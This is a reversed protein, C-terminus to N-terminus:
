YTSKGPPAKDGQRQGLFSQKQQYGYYDKAVAHKECENSLCTYWQDERCEMSPGDPYQVEHTTQMRIISQHDTRGHFHMKERKDWLHSPCSDDKCEYWLWKCKPMGKAHKPSWGAGRKDSYHTPCYDHTCATWSIRAHNKNRADYWYWVPECSHNRGQTQRPQTAEQPTLGQELRKINATIHAYTPLRQTTEVEYFDIDSRLHWLTRYMDLLTEGSDDRFTPIKDSRELLTSLINTWKRVEALSDRHPDEPSDPLASDQRKVHPTSPRNKEQFRAMKEHKTALPQEEETEYEEDSIPEAESTDESTTLTLDDLGSIVETDDPHYRIEPRTIVNWSENDDLESKQYLVNLQRKVKNKSMCNRAIHGEKGCAYCNIKKKDDKHKKFHPKSPGKGKNLNDLHMPEYGDTAYAGPTRPQYSRQRGQNPQSRRHHQQRPRDNRNDSSRMGQNFLREELALEYLENDLRIAEEILENLNTINAGSRMLERRVMPKLGQRYMRMLANDDWEIHTAYQQFQTTYDAASRTQRLTQIKQEAILSEKFPSFNQRMKTKFADWDEVLATNDADTISDDMYRKIIPNSWKEADGRHYSTALVVKDNDEIKDGALHFYRDVQLLWAELKNRDGHYLDPKYAKIATGGTQSATPTDM